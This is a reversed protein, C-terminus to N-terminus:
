LPRGIGAARLDDLQPGRDACCGAPQGDVAVAPISRIGMANARAAVAPDKMDLVSVECSECVISNILQITDDCAACGASFVEIRRKTPMPIEM